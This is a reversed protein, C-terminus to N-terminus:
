FKPATLLHHCWLAAPVVVSPGLVLLIAGALGLFGLVAGAPRLTAIGFDASTPLVALSGVLLALGPSFASDEVGAM